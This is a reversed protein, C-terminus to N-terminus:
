LRSFANFIRKEFILITTFIIKPIKSFYRILIDVFHPLHGYKIYEIKNSRKITNNNRCFYIIDLYKEGMVEYSLSNQATKWAEYSITKLLKRNKALNIITEAFCDVDGINCLYGNEGNRIILDTNNKLNSVIPVTAQGMAELYVLGLGEYYSPMILIDANHIEILTADHQKKGLFHINAELKLRSVLKILSPLSPGDGIIKLYVNANISVIKEMIAPLLLVGKQKEEIRGVYLINLNYQTISNEIKDEYFKRVDIGNTITEISEPNIKMQEKLIIELAPSVCVIKNWQSQNLLVVDYFVNLDNHLIPFVLTNEPLLGLISHVFPVHNLLLVDYKELQRVLRSGFTYKNEFPNILITKVNFGKKRFDDSQQGKSVTEIIDVLHGTSLFYSTLTEIYTEVGGVKLAYTIIGINMAYKYM